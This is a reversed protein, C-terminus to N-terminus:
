FRSFTDDLLCRQMTAQSKQKTMGCLTSIGIPDSSVRVIPFIQLRRCFIHEVESVICCLCNRDFPSMASSRSHGQGGCLVAIKLIQTKQLKPTPSTLTKSNRVCTSCLLCYRVSLLCGFVAHDLDRTVWKV